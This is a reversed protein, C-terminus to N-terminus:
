LDSADSKPTGNYHVTSYLLTIYLLTIYQVIM